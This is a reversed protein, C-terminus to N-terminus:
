LLAGLTELFRENEAQTGVTVRLAGERGLAGGARVLIGREALGRMVDAEVREEGLDFWVFNAQSEAATIGLEALGDTLSIREALNREVRRTVEDQHKLSELAAAQAAANCFFPQRVQDVATRFDESGCLAYGVRLGCLGYVKSFTRLLVLNPHKALLDVSEDPDQLVNFEIYAEDLIVAVHRPVSRVFDAIEDLPLATSTPNNPNCVIVLRTAATIEEAMKDLQHYHKADLPVEIARAGSAAALHPYVSFSPWAYVLEAGPELLADGAALLIDCSGNGIAIRTAPVGTRESLARRLAANTPDPYRNLGTLAKTVAEVVAPIPPYPSENSALKAIPGESAYGDAAPYVPIRRVKEAYEIAM